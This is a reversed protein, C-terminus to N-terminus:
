FLDMRQMQGFLLQEWCFWLHEMYSDMLAWEHAWIQKKLRAYLDIIDFAYYQTKYITDFSILYIEM